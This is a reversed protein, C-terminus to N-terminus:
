VRGDNIYWGHNMRYSDVQANAEERTGFMEEFEAKNIAANRSDRTEVDQKCLCRFVAWAVVAEHWHKPIGAEPEDDPKALSVLPFRSVTLKLLYDKDPTPYVRLAANDMGVVLHYPEGVDNEWDGGMSCDLRQFNIPTLFTSTEALRSRQIGIIRGDIPYVSQGAVLPIRCIEETTSDRLAMSRWAGERLGENLHSYIEASSYLAQSQGHDDLRDRVKEEM